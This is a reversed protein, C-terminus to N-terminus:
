GGIGTQSCIALSV